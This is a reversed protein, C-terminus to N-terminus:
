DSPRLQDLRRKMTAVDKELRDIREALASQGPDSQAITGSKATEFAVGIEAGHHWIVHARFAEDKNPIALEFIAPVSKM